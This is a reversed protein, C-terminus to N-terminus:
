VFKQVFSCREKEFACKGLAESLEGQVERELCGYRRHHVQLTYTRRGDAERVYNLMLGAQELGAEELIERVQEMYAQEQQVYCAENEKLCDKQRQAVAGRLSCGTLVALLLM